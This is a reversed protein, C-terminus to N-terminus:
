PVQFMINEPYLGSKLKDIIQKRTKYSDDLIYLARERARKYLIDMIDNYERDSIENDEILKQLEDKSLKTPASYPNIRGVSRKWSNLIRDDLGELHDPMKEFGAIYRNWYEKIKEHNYEM